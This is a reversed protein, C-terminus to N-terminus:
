FAGGSISMHTNIIWNDIVSQKNSGKSQYEILCKSTEKIIKNFVSCDENSINANLIYTNCCLLICKLFIITDIKDTDDKKINLLTPIKLENALNASGIFQIFKDAMDYVAKIDIEKATIVDNPCVCIQKIINETEKEFSYQKHNIFDEIDKISYPEMYFVTARSIITSLVTSIDQVTMIFYSDNPPEETVKLLANKSNVSMDDCDFFMYLTKETVTYSNYIIDRVEDAKTGCPVFNAGLKRSVYDSLVKKGFGYGGVFISFRPFKDKSILLDINKVLEKQGCIYM